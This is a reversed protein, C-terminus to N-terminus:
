VCHSGQRWGVLGRPSLTSDAQGRRQTEQGAWGLGAWGVEQAAKGAVEGVTGELRPGGGRGLLLSQSCLDIGILDKDTYPIFVNGRYVTLCIKLSCYM